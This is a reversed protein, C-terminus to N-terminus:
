MALVDFLTLQEFQGAKKERRKRAPIYPAIDVVPPKPKKIGCLTLTEEVLRKQTLALLERFNEESVTEVGLDKEALEVWKSALDESALCDAIDKALVSNSDTGYRSLESRDLRGEALMAHTRKAMCSEFQAVQQTKDMIVYMIKCKRMQGLRWARRSAQRVTNIDYSLQYFIITPWPLLDLGVEVLRMNCIIVRTGKLEQHHLWEIRREPSVSSELVEAHIGHDALVEQLRHHVGYSETYNAFIICGRDEALNERVTEVLWREKANYYGPFYAPASVTGYVVKGKPTNKSLEVVAGLDPRDAYCITSPIFKSFAGPLGNRFANTCAAHLEEHFARYDEWHEDDPDIFVPTEKLEVLPLGLDTLELFVARHLLHKAILEPAIGPMERPQSGTNKRKTVIGEDEDEGEVIRQLVGYRQAWTIAGSKHDFGDMILSRPDTRWLIDKISTSLGNVLTGTLCLTKRAAKVMQAFADGRGSNAAKVQHVEDCIYLMFHRRLKKLIRSVFWRPRNKTEGRSKLAPRWLPTGCHPCKRVKAPLKWKIKFGEPLGSVTRRTPNEPPEGHAFDDWKAPIPDEKEKPDLLPRGCDPCHWCFTKGGAIRKWVGAFWPEPGLKARDIGVLVFELGRPKHGNRVMRLYRAADETSRIIYVDAEPLTEAIEKEAWKPITIGPASLLVSNARGSTTHMVHAVGLSVISKGTGMDGCAFAVKEDQLANVLGQIAHAQAPYPIRSMQAIAPNLRGTAPDHRPRVKQVQDALVKANAKLYEKMDWGTNFKGEVSSPPIKLRGDKLAQGVAEMFNEDTIGEKIDGGVKVGLLRVAKLNKWTDMLPNFIVELERYHLLDLYSDEWERPYPYKTHIYEGVRTRINGDLAIVVPDSFNEHFVAAKHM